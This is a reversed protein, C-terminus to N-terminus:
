IKKTIDEKKGDTIIYEENNKSDFVYTASEQNSLNQDNKFIENLKEKIQNRSFPKAIYDVFGQSIYKEKSGSIADATLAIVPTNFNPNKKLEALTQEGNMNPMMIDMFILDYQNNNAKELCELGDYCEDIDFNFTSLAKRAVKINLKNDDVVLIKKHGFNINYDNNLNNVPDSSSKKFSKIKQPLWVTFISGQGFQSKVDIKGNMLEVLSKTIVLGLGTGEITTNREEDLRNFKTFLKSLNEEKIGKGTDKVSMTLNCVNNDNKCSVNLEVNGKETYKIANTLLNNLISKVHGIDGILEFPVNDDINVNLTIPKEGIRTSVLKIIKNIELRIDYTQDIVDVKGDEIKNLDLINGVIELLASSANQIDNLDESFESPLNNYSLLDESLGVIVNLPTRIEHSMSSLFDSKAHNAKEARDKALNLQNIIKVDPNEITHYMILLIYSYFFGEFILERYFGRLVFGIIYLLILILFPILKTIRNKKFFLYLSLIVFNLFTIVSYIIAIDYSLGEGDLVNDYYIVNLPLAFVLLIALATLINLTLNIIKTKKVSFIMFCYKLSFYNLLILISMYIKQFIKVLFMDNALKAIAFAIIGVIIFIINLILLKSYINVEENHIHKKSYFLFTLTLIILLGVIPLLLAEM